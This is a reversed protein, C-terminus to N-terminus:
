DKLMKVKNWLVQLMSEGKYGPSTPDTTKMTDEFLEKDVYARIKSNWM